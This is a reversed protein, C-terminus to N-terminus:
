SQFSLVGPPISTNRTKTCTQVGLTDQDKDLAAVNEVDPRGVVLHRLPLEGLQALVGQDVHLQGAEQGPHRLLVTEGEGGRGGAGRGPTVAGGVKGACLGNGVEEGGLVGADEGEEVLAPPVVLADPM